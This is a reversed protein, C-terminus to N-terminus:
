EECVMNLRIEDSTLQQGHSVRGRFSEKFNLVVRDSRSFEIFGFLRHPAANRRSDQTEAEAEAEAAAWCRNLTAGPTAGSTAGCGENISHCTAGSTTGYEDRHSGSGSGSGGGGLTGGEDILGLNLTLSLASALPDHV